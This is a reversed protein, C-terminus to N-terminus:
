SRVHVDSRVCQDYGVGPDYVVCESLEAPIHEVARVDWRSSKSLTGKLRASWREGTGGEFADPAYM